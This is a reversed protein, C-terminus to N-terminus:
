RSAAPSRLGYKMFVWQSLICWGLVLYASLYVVDTLTSLANSQNVSWAYLGSLEIWAYLLDAFSFALLGFWPRSFAGGRFRRAMWFALLALLLDAAPYFANVTTGFAVPAGIGATLVSYVILYLALLLGMAIVVLRWSGRRDPHALIQYQVFLAYGFFFYASIWFLDSIGEPVEGQTVNLYGWTLEAAAWLWLGMAFYIWIRRPADAPDYRRWILTAMAAAGSSAFVLFSNILITNWRDTFPEVLFIFTYAMLFLLAAVIAGSLMRISTANANWGFRM